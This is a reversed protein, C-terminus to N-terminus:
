RRVIKRSVFFDDKQMRNITIEKSFLTLINAEHTAKSRCFLQRKRIKQFYSSGM